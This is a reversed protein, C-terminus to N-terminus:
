VQLRLRLLNLAAQASRFRVCDRNGSFVFRETSSAEGSDTCIYVLGAPKQESAGTPGAIGTIGVGFTSDANRRAGKAMAAAVPESVAGYREILSGPVGLERCKAANSYTVWGALFYASAGAVDTLLKALLGGTCSEAVAVTRGGEALSRGVVESLSEEGCGYVLGGLKERLLKEDAEVMGEAQACSEAKAVIRLTIVGRQVTCGISPNRARRMESGLLDAIRSEPSGFCKLKRVAVAQGVAREELRKSVCREFMRRMELPVGPLAIFWRGEAKAIFGPATGADNVLPASGAPLYAQVENRVPMRIRRSAFYSRIWELLGEHLQLDVGLFRAIAQRTVDDDTPGLGGSSLVVDAKDGALKLVRVIADVEDGVTHFSVVPIGISLMRGGLYAANSDAVEGSLLEDGISVVSATKM